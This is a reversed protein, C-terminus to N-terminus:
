FRARQDSVLTELETRVRDLVEAYDRGATQRFLRATPYWPSDDRSLLWRYDPDYPLLIWTPRGLAGALHAVSTDVTVVLDLCNLLAATESFDGLDATLDVIDSRAQLTARDGPRPQKQLSVFTADVDLLRSLMSLPVSRNHDNKHEPNGSWVVGIRLKDPASERARLRQEWIAVRDAPPAPLYPTEAPITDLRTAFALPLGSMPCHLDFAPLTMAPSLALCDSVGPLGSLLTLAPGDVVLIVRAGRAAVMPVYRAFQITDGLGEDACILITKGTIDEGFWRPETFTPYAGPDAKKWRAERGTWGAEFDGHLM